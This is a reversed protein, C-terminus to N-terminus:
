HKRPPIYFINTLKITTNENNKFINLKATDKCQYITMKQYVMSHPDHKPLRSILHCTRLEVRIKMGQENCQFFYKLFFRLEM